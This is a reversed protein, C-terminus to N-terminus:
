DVDCGTFGRACYVAWWPDCPSTDPAASIAVLAALTTDRGGHRMHMHTKNGQGEPPRLAVFHFRTECAPPGGALEYLSWIETTSQDPGTGFWKPDKATGRAAYRCGEAIPKTAGRDEYFSFTENHVVRVLGPNRGGPEYDSTCVPGGDSLKGAPVDSSFDGDVGGAAAATAPPAQAPTAAPNEGAGCALTFGMLALVCSARPLSMSETSSSASMCALRIRVAATSGVGVFM